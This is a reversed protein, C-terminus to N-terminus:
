SVAILEADYRWVARGQKWESYSPVLSFSLSLFFAKRQDNLHDKLIAVVRQRHWQELQQKFLAGQAGFIWGSIKRRPSKRTLSQWVSHTAQLPNHEVYVVETVWGTDTEPNVPWSYNNFQWAVRSM